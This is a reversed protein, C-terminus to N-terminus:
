NCFQPRTSLLLQELSSGKLLHEIYCDIGNWGLINATEFLCLFFGYDFLKSYM